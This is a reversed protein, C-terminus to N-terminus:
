RGLIECLKYWVENDMRIAVVSDSTQKDTHTTIDANDFIKNVLRMIGIPTGRQREEKETLFSDREAKVVTANANANANALSPKAGKEERGEENMKPKPSSTDKRTAITVHKATAKDKGEDKAQEVAKTLITEAKKTNGRAERITNIALTASVTGDKVMDKITEPASQFEMARIVTQASTGVKKAIDDESWGFAMLRKYVKGQELTTLPRGSNSTIMTLTIDAESSYKDELIVPVSKIEINYKEQVITIARLRSFGNTVVLKNDKWYGRLPEKVGIEAISAALQEIHAIYEPTDDRVNWDTLAFLNNPDIKIVDSKGMSISSLTVKKEKYTAAINNSQDIVENSNKTM